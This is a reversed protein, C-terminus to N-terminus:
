QAPVRSEKERKAQRAHILTSLFLIGVGVVISADAVNFTPWHHLWSPWPLRPWVDVFDRVYAFRVRDYLNGAAGGLILALGWGGLRTIRRCRLFYILIGVVAALTLVILLTPGLSAGMGGTVGRNKVIALGLWDGAIWKTQGEVYGQDELHSFALAKTALDAAVIVAALLLYRLRSVPGEM